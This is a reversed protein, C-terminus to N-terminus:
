KSDILKDTVAPTQQATEPLSHTFDSPKETEIDSTKSSKNAQVNALPRTVDRKEVITVEEDFNIARGQQELNSESAFAFENSQNVLPQNVLSKSSVKFQGSEEISEPVIEAPEPKFPEWSFDVIVNGFGVKDGSNIEYSKGYAIRQGNLFTGNTSGIDAVRLAGTADMVLSAHHKSVSDDDLFLPNEKLRGVTLATKENQVFHLVSKKQNGNPLQVNAAVVVENPAAPKQLEEPSLLKAFIEAPVQVQESNFADAEDFGVSLTFGETLINAKSEVKVPALTAYRNDNVHDLAVLLLENELSKLAALFEDSSQGWSYRLLVFNPALKRGDQNIQSHKDILKRLREGLDSTSPLENKKKERGFVRDVSGGLGTLVRRVLKEALTGQNTKISKNEAM